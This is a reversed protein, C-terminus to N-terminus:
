RKILHCDNGEAKPHVGHGPHVLQKECDGYHKIINELPLGLKYIKMPRGKGEAKIERENVWNNQRLTRM